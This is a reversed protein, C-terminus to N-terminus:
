PTMLSAPSKSLNKTLEIPRGKLEPIKAYRIKSIASMVASTIYELFRPQHASLVKTSLIAITNIPYLEKVVMTTLDLAFGGMSSFSGSFKKWSSLYRLLSCYPSLGSTVPGYQSEGISISFCYESPPAVQTLLKLTFSCFPVRSTRIFDKLPSTVANFKKDSDFFSLYRRTSSYM